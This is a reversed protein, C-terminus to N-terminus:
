LDDGRAEERTQEFRRWPKRIAATPQSNTLELRPSAL